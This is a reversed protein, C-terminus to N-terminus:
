KAETKDAVLCGLVFSFKPDCSFLISNLNTPKWTQILIVTSSSLFLLSLSFRAPPGLKGSESFVQVAMQSAEM